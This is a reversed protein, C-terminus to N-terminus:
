KQKPLNKMMETMDMYNVGPEPEFKSGDLSVKKEIDHNHMTMEGQDTKTVVKRPFQLSPSIWVWQDITKGTTDKTIHWKDCMEGDVAETGVKSGNKLFQDMATAWDTPRPQSGKQLDVPIKMAMGGTKSYVIKDKIVMVSPGIPTQMEMRIKEGKMWTESTLGQPMGAGTMDTKFHLERSEAAMLPSAAVLLALLTRKM